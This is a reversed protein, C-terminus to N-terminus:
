QLPVSVQLAQDPNTLSSAQILKNINTIDLIEHPVKYHAALAVASQLERKHRQNYDISLAHVEKFSDVAESLLTGSDMGGSLLVVVGNTM